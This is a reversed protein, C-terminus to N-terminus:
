ELIEITGNAHVTITSMGGELAPPTVEQAAARAAAYLPRPTNRGTSLNLSQLRYGRGGFASKVTEARDKFAAIAEAILENEATRRAEPSVAFRIGELQMTAQLKGILAAAASFDRSELLIEGRGRWGQLQNARSYVPYSRNNGPRVRVAKYARAIGLADNVSRNVADAVAPAGADNVEVYLTATMLDNAVERQAEAQFSVTNYHPTAPEAARAPLAPALAAFLLFPWKLRPM